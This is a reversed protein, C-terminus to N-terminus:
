SRLGDRDLELVWCGSPQKRGGLMCGALGGADDQANIKM